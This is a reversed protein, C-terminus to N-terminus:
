RAGGSPSRRRRPSSRPRKRNARAPGSRDATDSLGLNFCIYAFAAALAAQVPRRYGAIARQRAGSRGCRDHGRAAIWLWLDIIFLSDAHYWRANLPSLLQVSYTTQLDLLPHTITGIYCLALLWGPRM